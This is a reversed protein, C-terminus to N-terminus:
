GFWRPIGAEGDVPERFPDCEGARPGPSWDAPIGWLIGGATCCIDEFDADSSLRSMTEM